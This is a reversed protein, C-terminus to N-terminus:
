KYPVRYSSLTELVGQAFHIGLHSSYSSITRLFGKRLAYEVVKSHKFNGEKEIIAIAENIGGLKDILGLELAKEGHYMLGSALDKVKSVEMSRNEAVENVFREHIADIQEQIVKREQDSFPRFMTGVDKHEGSKMTDYRIGYQKALESIDIHPLIVGISGVLSSSGAVIKDCASAIEYGGSAAYSKILAVTPIEISKIYNSIDESPAASGGPSSIDFIIGRAKTELIEKVRREVDRPTIQERSAFPSSTPSYETIEGYLYLRAISNKPVRVKKIIYRTLGVGGYVAIILEGLEVTWHM